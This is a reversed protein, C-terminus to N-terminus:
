LNIRCSLVMIVLKILTANNYENFSLFSPIASKELVEVRDKLLMVKEYIPHLFLKEIVIGM